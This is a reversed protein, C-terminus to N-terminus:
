RGSMVPSPTSTCPYRPYSDILHAFCPTVRGFLALQAFTHRLTVTSNRTGEQLSASILGTTPVHHAWTHLTAPYRVRNYQIMTNEISRLSRRKM